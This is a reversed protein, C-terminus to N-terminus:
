EFVLEGGKFVDAVRIFPSDLRKGNLTVHTLTAKEGLGKARITLTNGNSMHLTLRKFAPIGLAYEGSASCVPYFGMASYLYWASMQGCDDNGSLGDVGTHYNDKIIGPLRKQALDHRGVYDYLYAYHHGPENTHKYHGGDFNDDLKKIFEDKGGMLEVLGPVDQMVCFQYTWRAGETFGEEEGDWVGGEKKARFFGTEPYYINKYNKTQKELQAVDAPRLDKAMQLVCYDNLAFELTRSVAEKTRDSAVFGRNLYNTMGGRSEYGGHWYARDAWMHMLDDDPAEFADKRVAEYALNVDYGRFGNVYADAIVCDAHSGIMIASYNPNPWKPLWGGEKYMNLLGQVMGDVREGAVLQLWPHEARFTDWLSYDNYQEGEHIKGDFASYYRGQESFERPYQLTRMFATYFITKEEDTAGELEAMNMKDAWAKRAAAKLTLFNQKQPMEEDLNARAQDYSIFSSGIRVELPKGSKAFELYGGCSSGEESTKGATAKGDRWTGHATFKQSFRLVYYGGFNPAEPSIGAYLTPEANMQQRNVLRVEQREVDIEISGGKLERGAEFFLIGMENKPYYIRFASSKSKATMETTIDGGQSPYSVKYYYPTAVEKAHDLRAAREERTIKLAGTQPMLTMFGYDAMWIAPQHSGQFGTIEQTRYRYVAVSIENRQTQPVCQTMAFPTGIGPWTGGYSARKDGDSGIMMNVFDLNDKQQAAYVGVAQLVLLLFALYHKSFNM